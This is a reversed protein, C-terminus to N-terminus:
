NRRELARPLSNCKQEYARFRFRRDHDERFTVAGIAVPRSISLVTSEIDRGTAIPAQVIDHVIVVFLLNKTRPCYGIKRARM